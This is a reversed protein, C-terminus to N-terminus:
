LENNIYRGRQSLENELRQIEPLSDQIREALSLNEKNFFALYLKGIPADFSNILEKDKQIAAEDKPYLPPDPYIKDLYDSIVLSEPIVESGTDLVPVKGTVYLFHKCHYNM